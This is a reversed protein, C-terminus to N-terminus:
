VALSGEYEDGGTELYDAVAAFGYIDSDSGEYAVATYSMGAFSGTEVYIDDSVFSEYVQRLEDTFGYLEDEMDKVLESEVDIGKAELEREKRKKEYPYGTNSDFPLLNDVVTETIAEIEDEDGSRWAKEVHHSFEESVDFEQELWEVEENRFQKVHFGEHAMTKLQETESSELFSDGVVIKQGDGYDDVTRGLINYPMTSDFELEVDEIGLNYKENVEYLRQRAIEQKIEPDIKTSTASGHLM